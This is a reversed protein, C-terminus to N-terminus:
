AARRWTVFKMIFYTIIGFLILSISVKGDDPKNMITVVTLLLTGLIYVLPVLPYGPCLFGQYENSKDRYRFVFIASIGLISFIALGLSSVVIIGELNTSWIFFLSIAVQLWTARSPVGASNVGGAWSIFHGKEAMAMIIRPGTLIYASVSSVLMLAVILSLGRGFIDGFLRRASIEAIPALADFGQSDKIKNLDAASIALAYVLNVALYLSTVFLTGAIISRPLNRQPQRVEGAIFGVVNWGTYAYSIYILSTLSESLLGTSVKEPFDQPLPSQRLGFALGFAVFLVLFSIKVLTFTNQTVSSQKHSQSHIWALSIALITAIIAVPYFGVEQGPPQITKLFYTAAGKSSAAIPGAFGLVAAIWGTLFGALPGFAKNLILYDGGTLPVRCALESQALAGCIALIGGIIWLLMAWQHSGVSVVTFGSTTLIGTGVMSAVVIFTATSFGFGKKDEIPQPEATM